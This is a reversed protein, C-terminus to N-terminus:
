ASERAVIGFGLNIHHRPVKRGRGRADLVKLIEPAMRHTHIDVTTISPRMQGALPSDGLGVVALDQPVRRGDAQAEIIVAQALYDSSCIVLDPARRAKRIRAYVAAGQQYSPPTDIIQGTAASRRALRRWERLFADHTRESHNGVTAVFHPSRYGRQHAFRALEVGLEAQDFGIGIDIPRAAPDCIQIVTVGSRKLLAAGDRSIPSWALVGDVRWSLVRHILQTAREPDGGTICLMVNSGAAALGSTITEIAENFNPYVLDSVLLAILRRRESALSGAVLNPTYGLESVAARIRTTAAPSVVEPNSFFRSVTAAHVRARRAVDALTPTRNRPKM